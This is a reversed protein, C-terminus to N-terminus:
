SESANLRSIQAEYEDALESWNVDIWRRIGVTHATISSVYVHPDSLREDKSLNGVDLTAMHENIFGLNNCSNNDRDYIGRQSRDVLYAFLARIAQRGGERDDKQKLRSLTVHFPVGKKQIYFPVTNPNILEQRGLNDIILLRNPLDDSPNLHVFLVGSDAQMEEYALRCGTFIKKRKADRRSFDAELWRGIVPISFLGKLSDSFHLHKGKLFKIVYRQDDSELVYSQTGKGLYSFKQTFLQELEERQDTSLPSMDWVADYPFTTAIASPGFGQTLHNYYREVGYGAACVLVVTVLVRVRKSLFAFM